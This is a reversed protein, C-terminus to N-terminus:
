MKKHHQKWRRERDASESRRSVSSTPGVRTEIQDGQRYGALLSNLTGKKVTTGHENGQRSMLITLYSLSAVRDVSQRGDGDDKEPYSPRVHGGGDGV